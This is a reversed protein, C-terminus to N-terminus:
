IIKNSKNNVILGKQFEVEITGRFAYGYEINEIITKGNIKSWDLEVEGFSFNNSHHKIFQRFFERCTRGNGERFPHINMLEIWYKALFVALHTDSTIEKVDENMRSLEEDLLPDILRAPAFGTRKRMNVNRYTGAWDYLDGFVYKHIACLHNKDFTIDEVPMEQLEMMREFSIEKELKSLKEQDTENFKNILTTTGPYFYANWKKNNLEEENLEM